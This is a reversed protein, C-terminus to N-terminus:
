NSNVAPSGLPLDVRIRYLNVPRINNALSHGGLIYITDNRAISVHFSLGDQLEPLVYSTACGFEFDVLFVHPLCDAVSNWKETTRQTSPMYSRGGFLVGMSKGRSYVVDISHGYRAEPVDGVLDKEMCHFTVKKSNKCVISMVYIKDSLENNPTKGGHIIYQYKEAELSGKFTCTAPYRLPPLYCSDKSFITPKLKVHNQKVDFHFVGTPCSRKPWGKQGFFFVHGDFNMLSFGPQILATNNSVTVMQLSM